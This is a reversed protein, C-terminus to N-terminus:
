SLLGAIASCFTRSCTCYEFRSDSHPSLFIFLSPFVYQLLSEELSPPTKVGPQGDPVLRLGRSRLVSRCDENQGWIVLYLGAVVLISGLM